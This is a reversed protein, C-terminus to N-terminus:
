EAGKPAVFGRKIKELIGGKATERDAFAVQLNNTLSRIALVMVEQDTHVKGGGYRVAIRSFAESLAESLAAMALLGEETDGEKVVSDEMAQLQKAFAVQKAHAVDIKEVLEDGGRKRAEERISAMSESSHVM